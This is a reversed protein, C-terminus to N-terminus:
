HRLPFGQAITTPALPWPSHRPHSHTQSTQPTTEFMGRCNPCLAVHRRIQDQQEPALERKMYADSLEMVRECSIGAFDPGQDARPYFWVAFAVSASVALLAVRGAFRRHRRARIRGAIKSIEQPGCPTWGEAVNTM